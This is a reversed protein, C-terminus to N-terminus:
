VTFDEDVGSSAQVGLQLVCAHSQALGREMALTYLADVVTDADLSSFVEEALSRDLHRALSTSVIAILDGPEVRRYLLDVDVDTGSGVPLAPLMVPTVEEAAEEAYEQYSEEGPNAVRRLT